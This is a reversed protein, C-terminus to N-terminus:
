SEEEIEKVLQALVAIFEKPYPKEYLWRHCGTWEVFRENGGQNWFTDRLTRIDKYVNEPATQNERAVPQYIELCVHCLREPEERVLCISQRLYQYGQYHAFSGVSAMLKEFTREM